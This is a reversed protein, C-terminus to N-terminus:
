SRTPELPLRLTFTSGKGLESEATVAGHHAKAVQQAIWLGLGFGTPSGDNNARRNAREFQEFIRELDGPALGIGEDTVSIVADGREVAVEIRVPKGDGYKIANSLLNTIAQDLRLRDWTGTAGPDTAASIQLDPFQERFRAVAEAVLEKLDFAELHLEFRGARIRSVDLLREVLMHLRDLHFRSKDLLERVGAVEGARRRLLQLSLHFVNLPNRLEHAAIAIFEDRAQVAETLQAEVRRRAFVEKRLLDLQDNLLLFRDAANDFAVGHVIVLPPDHSGAAQV